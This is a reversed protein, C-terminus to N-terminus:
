AAGTHRAQSNNTPSQVARRMLARLLKGDEDGGMKEAIQADRVHGDEYSPGSKSKRPSGGM